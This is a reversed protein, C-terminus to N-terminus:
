GKACLSSVCVRFLERGATVALARRPGDRSFRSLPRPPFAVARRSRGTIPVAAPRKARRISRAARSPSPPPIPSRSRPNHIDPNASFELSRASIIKTVTDRQNQLSNTNIEPHVPNDPNDPNERQIQATNLVDVATRVFAPEQASGPDSQRACTATRSRRLSRPVRRPPGAM